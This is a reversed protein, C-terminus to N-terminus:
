IREWARPAFDLGKELFKIKYESLVKNSINFVTELRFYKQM